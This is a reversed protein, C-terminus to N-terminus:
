EAVIDTSTSNNPMEVARKLFHIWKIGFKATKDSFLFDCRELTFVYFLNNNLWVINVLGGM